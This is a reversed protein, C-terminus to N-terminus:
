ALRKYKKKKAKAKTCAMYPKMNRCTIVWNLHKTTQCTSDEDGHGMLRHAKDINLRVGADTSAANIDADQIFRCAFIAGCVTLIVIDFTIESGNESKITIGTKDGSTIRWGNM